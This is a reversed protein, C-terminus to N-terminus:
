KALSDPQQGEGGLAEPQSAHQWGPSFSARPTSVRPKNLAKGGPLNQIPGKGRRM